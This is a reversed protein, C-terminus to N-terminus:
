QSAPMSSSALTPEDHFDAQPADPEHQTITSVTPFGWGPSGTRSASAPASKNSCFEPARRSRVCFRTSPKMRPSTFTSCQDFGVVEFTRQVPEALGFLAFRGGHEASRRAFMLIARLGASNIYTMNTCDLVVPEAWRDGVESSIWDSFWTPARPLWAVTCRYM